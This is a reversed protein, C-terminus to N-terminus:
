LLPPHQAAAGWVRECFSLSSFCGPATTSCPLCSVLPSAYSSIFSPLLMVCQFCTSCLFPCRVLTVQSDSVSLVVDRVSCDVVTAPTQTDLPSSNRQLRMDADLPRLVYQHDACDFSPNRVQWAHRSTFATIRHATCLSHKLGFASPLRQPKPQRVFRSPPAFSGYTPTGTCASSACSCLRTSSKPHAQLSLRAAASHHAGSRTSVRPASICPSSLPASRFRTHRIPLKTRTVSTSGGCM